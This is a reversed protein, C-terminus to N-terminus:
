GLEGLVELGRALSRSLCEHDSGTQLALPRKIKRARGAKGQRTKPNRGKREEGRENERPRRSIRIAGGSDVVAADCTRNPARAM